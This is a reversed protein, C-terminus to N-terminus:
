TSPAGGSRSALINNMVEQTVDKGGGLNSALSMISYIPGWPFGWWGLLLTLLTYPMGKGVSGQGPKIYFVASGRKFTMVLISITYQYIVFRGGNAVEQELEGVTMNELGQIAM